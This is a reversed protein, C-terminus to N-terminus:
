ERYLRNRAQYGAKEEMYVCSILSEKYAPFSADQSECRVTMLPQMDRDKELTDVASLM